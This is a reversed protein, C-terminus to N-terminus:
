SGIPASGSLPLLQGSVGGVGGYAPQRLSRGQPTQSGSPVNEEPGAGDLTYEKAGQGKVAAVRSSAQPAPTGVRTPIRVRTPSAPPSVAVVSGSGSAILEGDLRADRIPPPGDPGISLIHGVAYATPDLAASLETELGPRPSLVRVHLPSGNRDGRGPSTRRGACNGWPKRWPGCEAAAVRSRYRGRRSDVTPQRRCKNKPRNACLGGKQARRRAWQGLM